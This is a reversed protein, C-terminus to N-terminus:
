SSQLPAVGCRLLFNATRDLEEPLRTPDEADGRPVYVIMGQRARTLLVRYANKRYTRKDANGILSWKSQKGLHLNRAVWETGSWIFDGGWCLGVWDLELGQIEFETAFVECAYSSRIDTRPALYWHHWPYDAHFTSSPELGEARLRASGSSGALGFRSDSLSVTKLRLRTQQLDRSLFLPYRRTINLEIAHQWQGDLVFNVWQALDDARLSRNSTRLHLASRQHINESKGADGFLKHGATSIGGSIVEPSAYIHWDCQSEQLARGWEELGAEGNNIEQGGGVLAVVVSWDKHRQMIQLLMEPESYNRRFKSMNQKLNWARQAEDFIVVRNSPPRDPDEDTYTKAFVHVNEILTKAQISSQAAPVGDRMGQRRFLEQLVQVLPGNGSMFHIADARSESLHALSLGVLTKGSGPVGTLFCIAHQHHTQAHQIINHIEETVSGIDHEAAESLAIERINLGTRLALAAEIITPTPVYRGNDWLAGEPSAASSKAISLILAPLTRWTSIQTPAIWFSPLTPFLLEIQRIDASRDAHSHSSVVIPCIRQKDSPKHFYHLLLAYEEVQKVADSTAAGRKCELLIIESGTLLVM